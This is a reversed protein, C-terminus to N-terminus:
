EGYEIEESGDAWPHNEYSDNLYLWLMALVAQATRQRHSERGGIFKSKRVLTKEPTRLAYYVLGVPKDPTGGSPGAIGTTSLAFQTKFIKSSGDAMQGAVQPSVAGYKKLDEESVGLIKAKSENSYAVVGGVFWESAGPVDVFRSALLGGTCSEATSVFAGRAKLIDGIVKPLSKEKRSYCWPKVANEILELRWEDEPNDFRVNFRVEVGLFSPYFGIGDTHFEELADVVKKAIASEPIGTTFFSEVEFTPEGAMESLLPLLDGDFIAKMEPPVGPLAVIANRGLKLFLGPAIGVPNDLLIAGKPVIAERINNEPMELGREAFKARFKEVLTEDLRSEIGTFKTIGDRTKDDDTPGLGGLTIVLRGKQFGKEIADAIEDPDDRVIYINSVLIGLPTLRKALWSSNTDVTRGSLLEDGISIISCLM